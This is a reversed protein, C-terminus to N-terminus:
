RHALIAHYIPDSAKGFWDSTPHFEDHWGNAPVIGRLDVYTANPKFKQACDSLLHNLDGLIAKVIAQQTSFDTIGIETMPKGLWKGSTPRPVADSYGHCIIHVGPQQRLVRLFLTEYQRKMGDMFTQYEPTFYDRASGAGSRAKLFRRLGRGDVLDNGGGSFLFFKAQERQLPVYFEGAPLMNSVTDGAESCCFIALEPRDMLHDIVDYLLFPYEFWSDGEAVIRIRREGGPERIQKAYRRQRLMKCYGNASNLLLASELGPIAQDVLVKGENLRFGPDTGRAVKEDQIFYPALDAEKTAPDDVLAMFEEITLPRANAVPPVPAVNEPHISELGGAAPLTVQLARTAPNIRIQIAQPLPRSPDASATQSMGALIGNIQPDTHLIRDFAEQLLSQYDSM